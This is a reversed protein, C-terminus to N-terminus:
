NIGKVSRNVTPDFHWSILDNEKSHPKEQVTDDFILVGDDDEVKRVEAKIFKWLDESTYDRESLFRTV